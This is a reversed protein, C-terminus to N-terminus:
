TGERVDQIGCIDARAAANKRDVISMMAPVRYHIAGLIERAPQQTEATMGTRKLMPALRASDTASGPLRAPPGPALPAPDRGGHCAM